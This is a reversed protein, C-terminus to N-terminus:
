FGRTFSWMAIAPIDVMKSLFYMKLNPGGNELWRATPHDRLTTPQIPKMQNSKLPKPNTEESQKSKLPEFSALLVCM